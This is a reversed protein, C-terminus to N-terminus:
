EEYKIESMAYILGISFWLMVNYGIHGSLNANIFSSIFLALIFLFDITDLKHYIKKLSKITSILILSFLTFGILGTEALLEIFINHPYVLNEFMFHQFRYAGFGIGFIMNQAFNNLGEWVALLRIISTVQSNAGSSNLRSIM